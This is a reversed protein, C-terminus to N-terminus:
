RISFKVQRCMAARVPFWYNKSMSSLSYSFLPISNVQPYDGDLRAIIMFLSM